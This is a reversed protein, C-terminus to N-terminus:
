KLLSYKEKCPRNGSYVSSAIKRISATEFAQTSFVERHSWWFTSVTKQPQYSQTRCFYGAIRNEVNSIRMSPRYTALMRKRYPKLFNIRRLQVFLHVFVRLFAYSDIVFVGLWRQSCLFQKHTLCTIQNCKQNTLLHAQGKLWYFACCDRSVFRTPKYLVIARPKDLGQRMQKPNRGDLSARM